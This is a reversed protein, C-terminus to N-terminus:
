RTLSRRPSTARRTRRGSPSRMSGTRRSRWAATYPAWDGDAVKVEISPTQSVDDTATASVTVAGTNWGSAGAAPDQAVTVVPVQTDEDGTTVHFWDFAVTVPVEQEPGIAM